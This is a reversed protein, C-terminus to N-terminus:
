YARLFSLDKHRTLTLNEVPKEGWGFIDFEGLDCIKLKQIVALIFSERFGLIHAVWQLTDLTDSLHGCRVRSRCARRSRTMMTV